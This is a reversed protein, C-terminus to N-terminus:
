FYEKIIPNYVEKYSNSFQKGIEFSKLNTWGEQSTLKSIESSLIAPLPELVANIFRGARARDEKTQIGHKRSNNIRVLSLNAAPQSNQQNNKIRTIVNVSEISFFVAQTPENSHITGSDDSDIVGSIGLKRFLKNWRVPDIHDPSYLGQKSCVM